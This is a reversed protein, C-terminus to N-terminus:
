PRITVSTIESYGNLECRGTVYVRVRKDSVLAQLLTDFLQEAGRLVFDQYFTQKDSCGSPNGAVDLTVLFRQRTTPTLETVRGYGTWGAEGHAGLSALALSAAIILRGGNGTM